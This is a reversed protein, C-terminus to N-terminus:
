APLPVVPESLGAAPKGTGPRAGGAARDRRSARIEALRSRFEQYTLIEFRGDRHEVLATSSEVWDGSNLYHIDGLM